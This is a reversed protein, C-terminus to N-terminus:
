ACEADVVYITSNITPSPLLYDQLSSVYFGQQFLLECVTVWGEGNAKFVSLHSGGSFTKWYIRVHLSLELSEKM